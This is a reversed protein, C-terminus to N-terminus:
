PGQSELHKKLVELRETFTAFDLGQKLAEEVESLSADAFTKFAKEFRDQNTVKFIEEVKKFETELKLPDADMGQVRSNFEQRAHEKCKLLATELSLEDMPLQLKLLMDGLTKLSEEIAKLCEQKSIYSWANEINPVHGSKIAEVYQGALKAIMAGTLCRGNLEKPKMEFLIRQRIASVQQVFEPRLRDLTLRALNQLQKENALPRVM